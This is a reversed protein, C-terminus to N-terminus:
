QDGISTDIRENPDFGGAEKNTFMAISAFQDINM